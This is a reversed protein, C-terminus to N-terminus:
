ALNNKQKRELQHELASKIILTIVVVKHQMPVLDLYKIKEQDLVQIDLHVLDKIKLKELVLISLQSLFKMSAQVWQTAKDKIWVQHKASAWQEVLHNIRLLKLVKHTMNVLGQLLGVKNCLLDQLQEIGWVLELKEQLRKTELTSGLDQFWMKLNVLSVILINNVQLCLDQVKFESLNLTM